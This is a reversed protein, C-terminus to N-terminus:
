KRGFLALVAEPIARSIEDRAAPDALRARDAAELQDEDSGLLVIPELLAATEANEFLPAWAEPALDVASMFGAAWDEADTVEEGEETEAVSFIPEWGDPKKEWLWAISRLHRLALLQARKRQKGSAFPANGEEGDGGWIRPLWAAGPLEALPQPSVLLGALYGDLAEINMAGDVPLDLLMEDLSSLEDDSLPLLDSNPNYSPYEM